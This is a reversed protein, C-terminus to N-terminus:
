RSRGRKVIQRGIFGQRQGVRQRNIIAVASYRSFVKNDADRARVVRRYYCRLIENAGDCFLDCWGAVKGVAARNGKGINIQGIDM